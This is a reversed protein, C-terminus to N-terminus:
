ARPTAMMGVLMAAMRGSSITATMSVLLAAMMGVSLTAMTGVLMAAMMSIWINVFDWFEEWFGPSPIQENM